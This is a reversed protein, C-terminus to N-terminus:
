PVKPVEPERMQPIPEVQPLVSGRAGGTTADIGLVALYNAVAGFYANVMSVVKARADAAAIEQLNLEVLSILNKDFRATELQLVRNAQKLEERARGLRKYTLELESVAAQVQARIDDRAFQENALLQALQARATNTLGRANRFPLPVELSAGVEATTRDTAFPGTGGLTKKAIGVDQSAQAFVNLGPMLQNTALKLDVNRREKELQFRVLEPRLSYAREVDAALESADPAAPVLDIFDAILWEAKPVVPNGNPDRLFLSLRFAAQQVALETTLLTEERGAVLRRNLVVIGEEILGGKFRADLLTQRDAALKLLYQAVRYQSGAAQWSWYSQAASRFFDLRARRIMPDALQETIQAARLRARRPDIERNQLLPVNVGARFEGGEATKREGYYIPFNGVGQRWGAFTTIGGYPTAQEVGADFRASSFTGSQDLGRARIMPDFAGEAALRQGAAIDREQEIAYLLPFAGAVSNLVEALTLPKDTRKEIGGTALPAPATPLGETRTPPALQPTALPARINAGDPLPSQTACGTALFMAYGCAVKLAKRPRLKM